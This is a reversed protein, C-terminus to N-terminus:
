IYIYIYLMEREYFITVKLQPIHSNYLLHRFYQYKCLILQLLLLNGEYEIFQDAVMGCNKCITLEYDGRLLVKLLNEVEEGCNICRHLGSLEEAIKQINGREDREM